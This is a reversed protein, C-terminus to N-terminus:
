ALPSGGVAAATRPGARARTAAVHPAASRAQGLTLSSAAALQAAAKALAHRDQADDDSLALVENASVDAHVAALLAGIEQANLRGNGDVDFSDADASLVNKFSAVVQAHVDHANAIRQLFWEPMGTECTM